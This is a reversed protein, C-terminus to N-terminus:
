AKPECADWLSVSQMCAAQQPHVASVGTIGVESMSDLAPLKGGSLMWRWRQAAAREPSEASAAHLARLDAAAFAHPREEDEQTGLM